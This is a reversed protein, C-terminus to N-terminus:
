LCPLEQKVVVPIDYGLALGHNIKYCLHPNLKLTHDDVIHRKPGQATLCVVHENLM